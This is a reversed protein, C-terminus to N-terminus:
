LSDPDLQCRDQFHLWVFCRFKLPALVSWLAKWKGSPSPRGGRAIEKLVFSCSFSCLSAPTLVIQYPTEDDMMKM